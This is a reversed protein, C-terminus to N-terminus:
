SCAGRPIEAKELAELIVCTEFCGDRRTFFRIHCRFSIESAREDESEFCAGRISLDDEHKEEVISYVSSHTGSVAECTDTQCVM